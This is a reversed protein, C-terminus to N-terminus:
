SARRQGEQAEDDRSVFRMATATAYDGLRNALEIEYDRPSATHTEGSATLLTIIGIVRNGELMPICLAGGVQSDKLLPEILEQPVDEHLCPEGLVMAKEILRAELQLIPDEEGPFSRGHVAVLEMERQGPDGGGSILRVLSFDKELVAASSYAVLKAFTTRDDSQTMAVSLESLASLATLRRRSDDTNLTNSIVFGISSAVSRLVDHVYFDRDTTRTKEAIIVGLTEGKLCIPVAFTMMQDFEEATSEDWKGRLTISRNAKAVAGVLGMGLPVRINADYPMYLGASAQLRLDQQDNEILYVMFADVGLISTSREAVTALKNPLSEESSAISEIEARISLETTNQQIQQYKLSHGLTGGLQETLHMLKALDDEAYAPGEEPANVNVVGITKGECKIPVSISSVIGPRGGMGKFRDDGVRGELLLPEGSEVVRGAIGEGARQRTQEAIVPNIGQSAAISLHQRNSDLLMLSGSAGNTARLAMTLVESCLEQFNTFLKFARILNESEGLSPTRQVQDSGSPKASEFPSREPPVM